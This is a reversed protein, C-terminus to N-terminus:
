KARKFKGFLNLLGGFLAGAIALKEKVIEKGAGVALDGAQKCASVADLSLSNINEGCAQVADAAEQKGQSALFLSTTSTVILVSGLAGKLDVPLFDKLKMNRRKIQDDFRRYGGKEKLLDGVTKM